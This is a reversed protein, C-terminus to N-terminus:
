CQRNGRGRRYYLLRLTAVVKDLWSSTTVVVFYSLLFTIPLPYHFISAIPQYAHAFLVLVHNFDRPRAGASSGMISIVTGKVAGASSQRNMEKEKEEKRTAQQKKHQATHAEVTISTLYSLM